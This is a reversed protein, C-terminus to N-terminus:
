VFLSFKSKEQEQIVKHSIKQFPYANKAVNVRVAGTSTCFTNVVVNSLFSPM